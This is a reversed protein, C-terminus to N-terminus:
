RNKSITSEDQIIINPNISLLLNLINEMNTLHLRLEIFENCSNTIKFYCWEKWAFYNNIKVYEIEDIRHRETKSFISFGTSSTYINKDTIAFKIKHFNPTNFLGSRIVQELKEIFLIKENLPIDKITIPSM